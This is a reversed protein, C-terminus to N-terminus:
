RRQIDNRMQEYQDKSIEGRAYRANLIELASNGAESTEYHWHHHDHDSAVSVIWYIFIFFLIIPIIMFLGGFIWMGTGAGMMGYGYGTIGYRAGFLVSLIAAAVVLAMIVALFIWFISMFGNRYRM